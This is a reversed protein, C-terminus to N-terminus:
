AAPATKRPPMPQNLRSDDVVAPKVIDDTETDSTKTEADVDDPLDFAPDAVAPLAVAPEAVAAAGEDPVETSDSPEDGSLDVDGAAAKKLKAIHESLRSLPIREEMLMRTNPGREHTELM